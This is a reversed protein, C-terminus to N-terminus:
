KEKVWDPLIFSLRQYLQLNNAEAQGAKLELVYLAPLRPRYGPCPDQPCPPVNKEIHVIQRHSNLWIIDLPILTNKMWFSYLDEEEFVFLMGQDPELKDRFMLGREREAPSVALEATIERGSPLYVKIFKDRRGAQCYLQAIVALILVVLVMGRRIFAAQKM